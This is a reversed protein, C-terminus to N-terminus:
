LVGVLFLCFWFFGFFFFVCAFYFCFFWSIRTATLDALLFAMLLGGDYVSQMMRLILAAIAPDVTPPVELPLPDEKQVQGVRFFFPATALEM